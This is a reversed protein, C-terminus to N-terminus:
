EWRLSEVPNRMAAVVTQVCVSVLAISLALLGSFLFVPLGLTTQYAFGSLWSKMAFYSVPWAIVNALVVWKTFERILLVVIQHVKAGLVKRVGIEKVRKETSYLTLGFLGLCSILIALMSFSRILLGFKRDADYQAGYHEDNFTYNIPVNPVISGWREKLVTLTEQMHDTEIRASISYFRSPDHFLIMPEVTHHLSKFHFDKVVGIVMRDINGNYRITQGVATEASEFGYERMLTENIIISETFDSPINKDFNRGALLIMQYTPIFQFDSWLALVNIHRDEGGERKQVTRYFPRDGPTHSSKTVCSVAPVRSFAHTILDTKKVAERNRMTQFVVVQESDFGLDAKQMFQMQRNIMGTSAILAISISFQMVVFLTRLRNSRKGGLTIRKSLAAQPSYASLIFSPISGAFLGLGLVLIFALGLYIGTFIFELQIQAGSMQNLLPLGLIVLGLSLVFGFICILISEILFQLILQKRRAGVVKRLGVEKSRSLALATTQNIYNMGAILLILVAIAGFLIVYTFNGNAELEKRLHSKLHIDTLPKLYFHFERDTERNQAMVKAIMEDVRTQSAGEKLLFYTFFASNGWNNFDSQTAAYFQIPCIMDVHFHSQDPLEQIVGTVKMDHTGAYTLTRGIPDREGFFRQAMPQTIVLNYKDALAKKPDGAVFQFSFIDLVSPDAMYFNQVFHSEGKSSFLAKRGWTYPYYLRAGAEIEPISEVLLPKVPGPLIAGGWKYDSELRYIRDAKEHFHDYRYEYITYTFILLTCALGIALSTMNVFSYIWRKKMTRFAIKIYNAIMRDEPSEDPM